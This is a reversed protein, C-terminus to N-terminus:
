VNIRRLTAVFPKFEQPNNKIQRLKSNDEQSLLYRSYGRRDFIGFSKFLKAIKSRKFRRPKYIVVVDSNILIEDSSLNLERKLATALLGDKHENFGRAAFDEVKVLVNIEKM